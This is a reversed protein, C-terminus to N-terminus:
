GMESSNSVNKFCKSSSLNHMGYTTKFILFEPTWHKLHHAIQIQFSSTITMQLCVACLWLPFKKSKVAAGGNRLTNRLQSVVRQCVLAVEYCLIGMECSRFPSRFDGGGRFGGM